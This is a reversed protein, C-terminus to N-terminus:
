NSFRFTSLIQDFESLYEEAQLSNVAFGINPSIKLIGSSLTVFIRRGFNQATSNTIEIANKQDLLIQKIIISSGFESKLAKESIDKSPLFTYSIVVGTKLTNGGGFGGGSTVSVNKELSVDEFNTSSKETEKLSYSPLYKFTYGRKTNTYTKWNATESLTDNSQVATPTISISNSTNTQTPQSKKTGLVYTGMGVLVLIIVGFLLLKQNM